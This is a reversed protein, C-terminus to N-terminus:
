RREDGKNSLEVFLLVFSSETVLLSGSCRLFAKPYLFSTLFSMRQLSISRSLHGKKAQGSSLLIKGHV